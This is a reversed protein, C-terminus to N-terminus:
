ILRRLRNRLRSLMPYRIQFARRNRSRMRQVHWYILKIVVNFQSKISGAVESARYGFYEMEHRSLSEVTAVETTTLDRKWKSINSPKPPREISPTKIPQGMNENAHEHYYLMANEFDVRLFDCVSELTNQPSQVLDEYKVTKLQPAPVSKHLLDFGQRTAQRWNLTNFVIDDSFYDIAVMSRVVARPDRVLHIFRAAPFMDVLIDAFFLNSPTKEGWKNKGHHRTWLKLVTQYPIRLNPSGYALILDKVEPLNLEPFVNARQHLFRDVFDRYEPWSVNPNRWDEIETTAILADFYKLEDPVALQSHANLMLRLLTTGSRSAGVIFFPSQSSM